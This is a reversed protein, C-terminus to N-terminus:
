GYEFIHPWDVVCGVIVDSGVLKLLSSVVGMMSGVAQGVQGPGSMKQTAGLLPQVLPMNLWALHLHSQM